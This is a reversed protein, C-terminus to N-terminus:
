TSRLSHVASRRGLAAPLAAAAPTPLWCDARGAAELAPRVARPVPLPYLPTHQRSRQPNSPCPPILHTGRGPSPAVTTQPLLTFGRAEWGAPFSVRTKRDKPLKDICPYPFSGGTKLLRQARVSRCGFKLFGSNLGGLGQFPLFVERFFVSFKLHM